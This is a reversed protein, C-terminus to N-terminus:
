SYKEGIVKKPPRMFSLFVSKACNICNTGQLLQVAIEPEVYHSPQFRKLACPFLVLRMVASARSCGSEATLRSGNPCATLFLGTDIHLGNVVFERARKVIIGPVSEIQRDVERATRYGGSM